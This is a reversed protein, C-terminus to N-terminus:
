TVDHATRVLPIGFREALEYVDFDVKSRRLTSVARAFEELAESKLKALEAQVKADEPPTTDWRHWPAPTEPSFNFRTWWALVQRRLMTAVAEEDFEAIDQRVVEHASAAAFSGGDIETTLNQGLLAVATAINAMQIQRSFTEFTNAFSEVLKVDFGPPLSIARTEGLADLDNALEQRDDLTSMQPATGVWTGAGHRESYRAWDTIAYHKLLWWRSLGRWVGRQWPYREGYPTFLVWRGDGADLRQKGEVTEIFWAHERSDWSLHKPHWVELWPVLRANVMQWRLQAVGVGLLFGWRMLHGLETEVFIHGVDEKLATTTPTDRVTRDETQIVRPYGLMANARTALVGGIRDESMMLECLEAARTLNGGDALSEADRIAVPSPMFM